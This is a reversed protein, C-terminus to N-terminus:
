SEDTNTKTLLKRSDARLEALCKHLYSGHGINTLKNINMYSDAQSSIDNASKVIEELEDVRAQLEDRQTEIQDLLRLAIEIQKAKDDTERYGILSLEVKELINRIKEIESM